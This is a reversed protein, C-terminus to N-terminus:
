RAAHSWVITALEDEVRAIERIVRKGDPHREVHVVLDVARAVHRAIAASSLEGARALLLELRGLADRASGSHITTLSGDHGTSLAELLASADRPSRVEGVIIRDPRMRLANVVLDAVGVGGDRAPVCELHVAHLHPLVLVNTDEIVIVREDAPIAAALSRLLTSKGSGTAGSILVNRRRRVADVLMAAAEGSLAGSTVWSAGGALPISLPRFKRISLCPGGVPEIVANARSGDRMRADVFPQEITLERGVSSAIRYVLDSLEAADRFAVAARELRGDREVFIRDPANVLVDTIRPDDLLAQLCGFGFLDACLRELETDSLRAGAATRVRERILRRRAPDAYLALLTAPDLGAAVETRVRTVLAADIV